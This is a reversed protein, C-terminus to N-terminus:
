RGADRWLDFASRDLWGFTGTGGLGLLRGLSAHEVEASEWRAERPPRQGARM